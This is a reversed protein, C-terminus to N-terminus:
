QKDQPVEDAVALTPTVVKELLWVSSQYDGNMIAHAVNRKAVYLLRNRATEMKKAFVEENRFYRYFTDRSIGAYYCAESVTAGYQLADELKSMVKYDVKIPRGVPKKNVM